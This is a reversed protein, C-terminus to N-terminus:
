ETKKGVTKRTDDHEISIQSGSENPIFRISKPFLKLTM